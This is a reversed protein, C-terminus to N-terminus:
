FDTSIREALPPVLLLATKSCISATFFASAPCYTRKKSNNLHIQSNRLLTPFFTLSFPPGCRIKMVFTHLLVFCRLVLFSDFRRESCRGSMTRVSIEELAMEEEHVCWVFISRIHTPQRGAIFGASIIEWEGM